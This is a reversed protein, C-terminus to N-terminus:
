KYIDGRSGIDMITVVQKQIDIKYIIRISGLRYRCYGKLKGELRVINVGFRPKAELQDLCKNIRDVTKAELKNYVKEATKTLFVRYM